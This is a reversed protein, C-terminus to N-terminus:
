KVASEDGSVATVGEAGGGASEFSVGSEELLAAQNKWYGSRYEFYVLLYFPLYELIRFWWLTTYEIYYLYMLGICGSLVIISTPPEKKYFLSLPILWLVYWPFLTPSVLLMVTLVVIARRFMDADDVVPRRASWYIAALMAFNGIRSTLWYAQGPIVFLLARYVFHFIGSNVHVTGLYQMMGHLFWPLCCWLPLGLVISAAVLRKVLEVGYRRVFLPLLLFAFGKTFGAAILLAGARVPRRYLMMMMALLLFFVGVGDQHAALAIETIPLPCWAYWYLNTVPFGRMKLMAVILGMVGIDFLFLIAKFGLISSGFLAYSLAFLAQSVPMYVTNYYKYEMPAWIAADRFQSIRSDLPTYRYPNIGHMTLRGDWIYRYVDTSISPHAPLLILRFIAGTIFILPLYIKSYKEFHSGFRIGGYLYVCFAVGYLVLYDTVPSLLFLRKSLHFFIIFLSAFISGFAIHKLM